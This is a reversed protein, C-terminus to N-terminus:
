RRLGRLMKLNLHQCPVKMLIGTCLVAEGAVLANAIWRSHKPNTALDVAQRYLEMELINVATSYNTSLAVRNALLVSTVYLGSFRINVRLLKLSEPRRLKGVDPALWATSGKSIMFTM